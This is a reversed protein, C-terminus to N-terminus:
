MDRMASILMSAMYLKYGDTHSCNQPVNYWLLTRVGSKGRLQANVVNCYIIIICNALEAMWPICLSRELPGMHDNSEPHKTEALTLIGCDKPGHSCEWVLKAETIAIPLDQILQWTGKSALM